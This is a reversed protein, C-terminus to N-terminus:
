RNDGLKPTLEILRERTPAPQPEGPAAPVIRQEILVRMIEQEMLYYGRKSMHCYDMWVGPPSIARGALRDAAAELDALPLNQERALQRLFENYSPRTRNNPALQVYVRYLRRAQELDGRREAIRALYYAAYGQQASQLLLREAGSLDGQDILRRAQVINPDATPDASKGHVRPDAGAYDWHIPLTALLLRVGNRRCADVIARLNVRYANEIKQTDRDQPAFYAREDLSPAPLLAKKLLRYVIWQHLAENLRTQPVYGENNGCAVIMLDPKTQAMKAAIRRVRFSSESGVAANIVGFPRSPFRVPLEAALWDPIGGKGGEQMVQVVWPSGMMFSEGAVILRFAGPKKQVPFVEHLMAGDDLHYFGREERLWHDPLYAVRDDIRQTNLLRRHELATLGRTLLAFFAVFMLLSFFLRRLTRSLRPSRRRSRSGM